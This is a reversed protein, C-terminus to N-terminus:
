SLFDKERIVIYGESDTKRNGIPWKKSASRMAADMIDAVEDLHTPRDPRQINSIKYNMALRGMEDVSFHSDSAYKIGFRVLERTTFVPINIKETFMDAFRENEALADRIGDASDELIVVTGSKDNNMLLSLSIETDSSILGANEIILCGGRIKKYIDPPNKHNLKDADIKGINDGPKGIERRLVEILGKALNTKGSGKCGSIIINGTSAPSGSRIRQGINNLVSTIKEEMGKIPTFYSFRDLDDDNLSILGSGPAESALDTVDNDTDIEADEEDDEESDINDENYYDGSDIDEGSDNDDGSDIDEESDINITEDDGDFDTEETKDADSDVTGPADDSVSDDEDAETVDCSALEDEDAESTEDSVHSEAASGNKGDESLIEDLDINIEPLVIKDKDTAQSDAPVIDDEKVEDNKAKRVAMSDPVYKELESRLMENVGNLLLTSNDIEDSSSKGNLKEPTWEEPKEHLLDDKSLVGSPLDEPVPNESGRDVVPVKLGVGDESGNKSVRPIDFTKNKALIEEKLLESPAVGRDLDDKVDSLREMIHNAEKLAVSKVNKLKEEEADKLAAEAARQTKEWNNMVDQITLQGDIQPDKTKENPLDLSMQGDYEESLYHQYNEMVGPKDASNEEPNEEEDASDDQVQLYPIKEVLDHINEMNSDVDSTKTAQMIEEINKKIETQLNITNFKEPKVEVEPITVTHAVIEGSKLPENARIETIGERSQCFRRYQDEQAKNLPHYLMKLELAKEVYPGNGYYLAIEDCLEICKDVQSTKHYLCALEYAWEELFAHAKLEELISILAYDDANDAVAIRYQLIYRKVDNPAATVYKEYYIRANDIDDTKLCLDCLEYLVIRGSPSRDYAEELLNVAEDYSGADKYLEAAELLLSISKVKRWNMSDLNEIVEEIQGADLLERLNSIKTRYERDM